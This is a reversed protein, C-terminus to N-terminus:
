SELIRLGQEPLARIISKAQEAYTLGKRHESLVKALRQEIESLPLGGKKIFTSESSETSISM